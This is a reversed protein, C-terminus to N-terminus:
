RCLHSAQLDCCRASERGSHAVRCASTGLSGHAHPQENAYARTRMIAYARTRMCPRVCRRLTKPQDFSTAGEFMRSMVAVKSVDWIDLPQNFSTAGAFMSSMDKVSSVDWQDLPQNFSAAYEFM